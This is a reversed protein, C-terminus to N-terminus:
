ALGLCADVVTGRQTGAVAHPYVITRILKPRLALVCM